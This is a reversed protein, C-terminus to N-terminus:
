RQECSCSVNRFYKQEIQSKPFGWVCGKGVSERLSGFDMNKLLKQAEWFWVWEVELPLLFNKLPWMVMHYTSLILKLNYAKLRVLEWTLQIIVVSGLRKPGFLKKWMPFFSAEKLTTEFVFFRNNFCRHLIDAFDRSLLKSYGYLYELFIKTIM